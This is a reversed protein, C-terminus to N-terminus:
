SGTGCRRYRRHGRRVANTAAADAAAAPVVRAHVELQGEAVHLSPPSAAAPASAAAAGAFVTRPVPRVKMIHHADPDDPEEDEPEDKQAAHVQRELVLEPGLRFRSDLLDKLGIGLNNNNLRM